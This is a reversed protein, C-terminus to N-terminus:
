AGVGSDGYTSLQPCYPIQGGASSDFEGSRLCSLGWKLDGSFGVCCDGPVTHIHGTEM